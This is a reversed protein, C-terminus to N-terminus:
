EYFVMRQVTFRDISMNYGRDRKSYEESLEKASEEAVERTAFIGSVTSSFGGDTIEIWILVYVYKKTDEIEEPTVESSKSSSESWYNYAARGVLTAAGVVGTYFVIQKGLRM